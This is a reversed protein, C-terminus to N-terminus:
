RKAGSMGGGKGRGIDVDHNGHCAEESATHAVDCAEHVYDLHGWDAEEAKQACAHLVGALAFFCAIDLLIERMIHM